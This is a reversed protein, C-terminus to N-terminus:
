AAAGGKKHGCDTVGKQKPQRIQKPIKSSHRPRGGPKWRKCQSM